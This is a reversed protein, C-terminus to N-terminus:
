NSNRLIAVSISTSTYGAFWHFWLGASHTLTIAKMRPKSQVLQVPYALLQKESYGLLKCAAKNSIIIKGDSVTSIINAQLSNDFALHHLTDDSAIVM